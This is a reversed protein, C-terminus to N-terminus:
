DKTGVQPPLQPGTTLEVLRQFLLLLEQFAGHLRTFLPSPMFHHRYAPDAASPQAKGLMLHRPFLRSDPCCLGLVEMGRERFENYAQIIDSLFDYYYQYWLYHGQSVIGGNHLYAWNTKLTAGLNGFPNAPFSGALMPQFATYAASLADAVSNVLPQSLIQQYADFIDSSNVLATAEVNYRPLRLEALHFRASTTAAMDLYETASTGLARVKNQIDDMDRRRILLPIVTATIEQGKDDCSNPSCNKNDLAKCELFLILIKEDEEGPPMGQGTLFNLTLPRSAPDDNHNRDLVWLPYQAEPTTIDGDHDDFFTAYRVNEPSTYAKFYRLPGLDAWTILYGESTLGCGKSISIHTGDAAITPDLGCVIGIGILNTRTLREQEDLYAFLQNLHENSLVQNPEFFPYSTHVPLM